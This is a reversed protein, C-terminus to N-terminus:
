DPWTYGILMGHIFNPAGPNIAAGTVAKIRLTSLSEFIAQETAIVPWPGQAFSGLPVLVGSFDKFPIGQANGGGPTNVDIKWVISGDGPVWANGVDATFLVHTLCFNTGDPVQYQCVLTSVGNAPAIIDGEARVHESGPPPAFWAYPWSEKKERLKEAAINEAERISQPGSLVRAYSQHVAM